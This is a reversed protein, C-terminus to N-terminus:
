RESVRLEKDVGAAPLNPAGAGAVMGLAPTLLAFCALLDTHCRRTLSAGTM